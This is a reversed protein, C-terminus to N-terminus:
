FRSLRKEIEKKLAAIYINFKPEAAKWEDYHVQEGYYNVGNRKTRIKEFFDWDFGIEPHKACLYAFLCQHNESMIKEFILLAEACIRIAEYHLTYVTMWRRDEKSLSKALTNASDINTDANVILSRVRDKNVYSLNVYYGDTSCSEYAEEKTKFRPM